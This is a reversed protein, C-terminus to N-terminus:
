RFRANMLQFGFRRNELSYTLGFDKNGFTYSFYVLSDNVTDGQYRDMSFSAGLHWLRSISFETDAFVTASDVDLSKSGYLSLMLKGSDVTWNGTLRHKGTLSSMFADQTYDYSFQVSGWSGLQSTLGVRGLIGLGDNERNGWLQSVSLSANLNAGSWLPQPLMNFSAFASIGEQHQENSGYIASSSSASLGYTFNFPTGKIQKQDARLSLDYRQSEQRLGQFSRTSSGNLSLTYGPMDHMISASGYIGKFSPFDLYASANTSDNIRQSHRWNLGMDKRGIGSLTVSGEANDGSLYTNEWDVFVGRSSASGRGYDAGSRLRFLSTQGPTLKLYYPYNLVVGGNQYSIIQEGLINSGAGPRMSYMPLSMVKSDGMYVKAHIVQIERGPFTVIRDAHVSNNAIGTDKFEFEVPDMGKESASPVGAIIKFYGTHGDVTMIASGRRRLFNYRLRKCDIKNGAVTLSAEWATVELDLTGIQLDDAEIMTDRYRLKGGGGKGSASILNIEPYYALYETGTAEVHQRMAVLMSRDKVFELDFTAVTGVTSAVATVKVIGPQVPAVLVARAVGASTIADTERFSGDSSSFRVVTGDAVKKGSADRVEASITVTSKGDAVSLLRDASLKLSGTAFAFACSLILLCVSVFRM